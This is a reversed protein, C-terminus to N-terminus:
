YTKHYIYQHNVSLTSVLQHHVNSLERATIYIVKIEHVKPDIMKLAELIAKYKVCQFIGRTIDADDSISSKVEVAVVTGNALEFYVDLKDGSPLLQEIKARVVDKLGVANPHNYIYEKLEKHAKGEGDYYKDASSKITATDKDTFPSYPSLELQTLVWDWNPYQIAESIMGEILLSKDIDDLMDYKSWVFKFGNSPIGERKNKVLCNLTPIKQRSTASLEEIVSQLLGLSHGLRYFNPRGIAASSDGYTHHTQGTKAWYILVPAIARVIKRTAETPVINEIIHM